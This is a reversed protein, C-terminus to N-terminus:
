QAVFRGHFVQFFQPHQQTNKITTRKWMHPSLAHISIPQPLYRLNKRVLIVGAKQKTIGLEITNGLIEYNKM